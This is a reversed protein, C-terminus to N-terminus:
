SSELAETGIPFYKYAQPCFVKWLTADCYHRVFDQMWPATYALTSASPTATLSTAPAPAKPAVQRSVM